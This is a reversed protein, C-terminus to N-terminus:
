IRFASPKYSIWLGGFVFERYLYLTVM